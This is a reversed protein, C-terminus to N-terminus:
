RSFRIRSHTRAARLAETLGPAYSARAVYDAARRAAPSASRFSVAWGAARLMPVDNDGDGAVLCDRPTLGSPLLARALAPLKGKGREILHIAYGTPIVDV